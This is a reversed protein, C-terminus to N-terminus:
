NKREKPLPFAVLEGVAIGLGKAISVMFDYTPSAKGNEVRWLTKKNVDSLDALEQLSMKKGERLQRLHIGFAKVSQPNKM